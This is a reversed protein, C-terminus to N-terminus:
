NDLMNREQSEEDSPKIATKYGVNLSKERKRHKMDKSVLFIGTMMIIETYIEKNNGVCEVYVMRYLAQIINKRM